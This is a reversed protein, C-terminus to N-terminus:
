YNQDDKNVFCFIKLQKVYQMHMITGYLYKVQIQQSAMQIQEKYESIKREFKLM